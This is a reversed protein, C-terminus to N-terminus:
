NWYKNLFEELSYWNKGYPLSGLLDWPIIVGKLNYLIEIEKNLVDEHSVLNKEPMYELFHDLSMYLGLGKSIIYLSTIADTATNNKLFNSESSCHRLYTDLSCIYVDFDFNLKTNFNYLFESQKDFEKENMLWEKSRIIKTFTGDNLPVVFKIIYSMNRMIALPNMLFYIAERLKTPLEFMSLFKGPNELYENVMDITQELSLMREKERFESNVISIISIGVAWYDSFVRYSPQIYYKMLDDPILGKEEDRMHTKYLSEPAASTFTQPCYSTGWENSSIGFDILKLVDDVVVMNNVKIDCHYIGHSHLYVVGSVLDRILNYASTRYKYNELPIGYPMELEVKDRSFYITSASTINPHDVRSMIDIESINIIGEEPKISVAKLAYENGQEDVVRYVTGYAGRGIIETEKYEPM